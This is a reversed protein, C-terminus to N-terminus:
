SDHVTGTEIGCTMMVDFVFSLFISPRAGVLKNECCMENLRFAKGDQFSRQVWEDHAFKQGKEDEQHHKRHTEEKELKWTNTRVDFGCYM